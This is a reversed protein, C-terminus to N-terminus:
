AHAGCDTILTSGYGYSWECRTCGAYPVPLRLPDPVKEYHKQFQEDLLLGDLKGDKFLLWTGHRVITWAGAYKIEWLKSIGGNTSLGLEEARAITKPGDIGGIYLFQEARVVPGVKRYNPM